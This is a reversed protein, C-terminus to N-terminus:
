LRKPDPSKQGEDSLLDIMETDTSSPGRPAKRKVQPEDKMPEGKVYGGGFMIDEKKHYRLKSGAPEEPTELECPLLGDVSMALFVM